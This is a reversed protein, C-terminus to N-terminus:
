ALCTKRRHGEKKLIEEISYNSYANTMNLSLRLNFDYRKIESCLFQVDVKNHMGIIEANKDSDFSSLSISITTVGVHNRLFRLYSSDLLTGTTQMEICRFPKDLMKNLTGFKELFNRNQQPEADGTLM